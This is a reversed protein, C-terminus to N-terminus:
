IMVPPTQKSTPKHVSKLKEIVQENTQKDLINVLVGHITCTNATGHEVRCRACVVKIVSSM